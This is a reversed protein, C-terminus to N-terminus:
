RGMETNLERALSERARSMRGSLYRAYGLLMVWTVGQALVVWGWGWDASVNPM